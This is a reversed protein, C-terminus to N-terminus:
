VESEGKVLAEAIAIDDPTTIKINRGSGIVAKVSYGAAEMVSADDTLEEVNALSNCANKYKGVDVGQPTQAAYLMSRDVTSLVVGDETVKKVTDNIKSVCLAADFNELACAVASITATDIFPRAGDHILVKLDNKDLREIGKMVSQHRNDGGTVIDTVKNIMHKECILQMDPISDRATVIIIKSIDACSEFTMLTRAIVPIGLIPMFQKNIGRMRTSSGAAVIIVPVAKDSIKCVDYQLKVETSNM